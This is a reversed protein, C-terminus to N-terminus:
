RGTSTRGSCTRKRNRRMEQADIGDGYYDQLIKTPYFGAKLYGNLVRQNRLHTQLKIKKVRKDLWALRKALLQTGIGQGRWAPVVTNMTLQGCHKEIAAAAYGIITDNHTAVLYLRDKTNYDRVFDSYSWAGELTYLEADLEALTRLDSKRAKRIVVNTIDLPISGTSPEMITDAM